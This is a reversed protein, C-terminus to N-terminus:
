FVDDYSIPTNNEQEPTFLDFVLEMEAIIERDTLTLQEPTMNTEM